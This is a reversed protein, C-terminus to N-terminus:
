KRENNIAIDKPLIAGKKSAIELVENMRFNEPNLLMEQRHFSQMECLKPHTHNCGLIHLTCDAIKWPGEGKIKGKILHISYKPNNEWFLEFYLLGEPHKFLNQIVRKEGNSYQIYLPSKITFIEAM